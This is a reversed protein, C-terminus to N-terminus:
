CPGWMRYVIVWQRQLSNLAAEVQGVNLVKGDPFGTVILCVTSAFSTNFTEMVLKLRNSEEISRWWSSKLSSMHSLAVENITSNPVSEDVCLGIKQFVLRFKANAVSMAANGKKRIDDISSAFQVEKRKLTEKQKKNNNELHIICSDLQVIRSNLNQDNRSGLHNVAFVKVSTELTNIHSVLDNLTAELANNKTGLQQITSELTQVTTELTVFDNLTVELATNKTTFTHNQSCLDNMSNELTGNKTSLEQVATELAGNKTEMSSWKMNISTLLAMMSTVEAALDREIPLAPNMVFQVSDSGAVPQLSTSEM